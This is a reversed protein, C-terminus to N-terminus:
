NYFNEHIGTFKKTYYQMFQQLAKIPSLKIELLLCKINVCKMMNSSLSGLYQIDSQFTPHSTNRIESERKERDSRKM